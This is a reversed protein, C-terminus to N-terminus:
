AASHCSRYKTETGHTYSASRISNRLRKRRAAAQRMQMQMYVYSASGSFLLAALVTKGRQSALVTGLQTALGAAKRKAAPSQM